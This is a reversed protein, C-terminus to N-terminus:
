LEAYRDVPIRPASPLPIDTKDDIWRRHMWRINRELWDHPHGIAEQRRLWIEFELEISNAM